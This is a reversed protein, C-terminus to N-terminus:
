DSDTITVGGDANSVGTVYFYSGDSVMRVTDGVVSTGDVFTITDASADYPGDDGTDTEREVIGGILVDEDSNGTLITYSAGSPAGAIYFEFECGASVTSVAPLTTQFETESNLFMVKGCEANTLINTATVTEAMLLHGGELDVQGEFDVGGTVQLHDEGDEDYRITAENSDGFNLIDDDSFRADTGNFILMDASADFLLTSSATAGYLGLDVGDQDAGMLVQADDDADVNALIELTEATDSEIIWDDNTGVILDADDDLQIDVDTFLLESNTEDFLLNDGTAETHWYVDVGEDDAGIAIELGSGTIDLDANGGDFAITIDNGDGFYLNDSDNINLDAGEFIAEDGSADWLFYASASAGFLKLDSGDQDAGINVAGSEDSAKSMIELTDATDSEVVWDDDSGLVLDADDNLQLDVDTFLVEVNDEDFFVNDSATETHWYVDFGAGDAGLALELDDGTIDLDNGTGDYTAKFDASSGLSLRADDNIQLESDSQDYLIDASGDFTIDSAFTHTGGVTLSGALTVNGSQNVVLANAVGNASVVLPDVNADASVVELVTGNTPNGTSQEVKMVSVDGFNGVGKVTMMDENTDAFSFTTIENDDFTITKDADGNAIDDWATSGAATLETVTGGDDEFYLDSTGSNDKLYLWGHNTAPNGSPASIEPFDAYNTPAAKLNIDSQRDEVGATLLIVCAFLALGKLFMKWRM